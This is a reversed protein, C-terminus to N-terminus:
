FSIGVLVLAQNRNSRLAGTVTDFNRFAWGDYRIEPSIRVVLLKIDLGAGLVVGYNARHNLEIVSKLGTVRSLAVGGEIYPNVPGKLLKYKALVPFEWSNASVSSLLSRFEYSRYLADVEVAFNLPLRLEVFPGIVYRHTDQVYQLANSPQVSLADTLPVGAKLGVGVPQAVAYASFILLCLVTKRM